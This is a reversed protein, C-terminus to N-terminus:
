YLFKDGLYREKQSKPQREKEKEKRQGKVIIQSFLSASSPISDGKRYFFYSLWGINIDRNNTKHYNSLRFHQVQFKKIKKEM